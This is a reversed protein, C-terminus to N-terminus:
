DRVCAYTVVTGGRPAKQALNCLRAALLAACLDERSAIPRAGLLGGDLRDVLVLRGGARLPAAWSRVLQAAALADDAAGRLEAGRGALVLVDLSRPAAPPEGTARVLQFEPRARVRRSDTVLLVAFGKQGLARALQTDAAVLARGPSGAASVVAKAVSASGLEGLFPTLM